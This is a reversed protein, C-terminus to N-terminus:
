PHFERAFALQARGGAYTVDLEFRLTDPADVDATGVADVLAGAGDGSRLERMAIAQRNGRLDIAVAKVQAPLSVATTEDAGKRVSVLLMVTEDSRSIGYQRAIAEGLTRTPVATARVRVDGVQIVVDQPAQAAAPAQRPTGGCASLAALLVCPMSARLARRSMGKTNIPM